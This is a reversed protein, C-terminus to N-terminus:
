SAVRRRWFDKLLASRFHFGDPSEVLYGDGMLVDLLYRLREEREDPDTIHEGLVQYLTVRSTGGGALAVANLLAIARGSDPRGLEENLRQRWYDFYAKKAPSALGDFVQDLHARTVEVGPDCVDRLESFVLQLYFPIPWGLRDVVENRLEASLGLNYNAGLAALFSDAVARPFAGLSVLHLDNITDGLNLRAAVTDLGISGALLWRVRSDVDSTQRVQRFWTLFRRARAGKADKRLLSLVFVPLEDVMLLWGGELENLAETLGQGLRAWHMEAEADFEVSTGLVAVKRIRKVFRGLPGKTIRRLARKGRDLRAVAGYVKEVFALESEVGAASTYTAQFGHQEATEGLKRMLSTKGVRRPALLLLHDTDLRRWIQGQEPERDYFNGGSVPPGVLNKIIVREDGM